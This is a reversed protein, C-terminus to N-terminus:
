KGPKAPEAKVPSHVLTKTTIFINVVLLIMGTAIGGLLLLWFGRSAGMTAFAQTFIAIALAAIFGTILYKYQNDMTKVKQLTVHRHTLNLIIRKEVFIAQQSSFIIKNTGSHSCTLM